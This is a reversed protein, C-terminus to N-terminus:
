SITSLIELNHEKIYKTLFRYLDKLDILKINYSITINTMFCVGNQCINKLFALVADPESIYNSTCTIPATDIPEGNNIVVTSIFIDINNGENRTAVRKLVGIKNHNIRNMNLKYLNKDILSKIIEIKENNVNKKTYYVKPKSKKISKVKFASHTRKKSKLNNQKIKSFRAAATKKLKEAKSTNLVARYPEFVLQNNVNFGNFKRLIEEFDKNSM